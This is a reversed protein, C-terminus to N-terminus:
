RELGALAFWAGQADQCQAIWSGMPTQTPGSIVSGGKHQARSIAASLSQVTFYYSWQPAFTPDARQMMGGVAPGGNSFTQYTGLPGLDVTAEKKWGYLESYFAFAAKADSTILENWQVSGVGTAPPPAGGPPPTPHFLIFGAGQPDSVPAFRGVNPIDAPPRHVTGGAKQLRAADADVTPSTVYGIWGTKMGGQRQEPSM